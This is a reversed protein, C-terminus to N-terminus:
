SQSDRRRGNAIGEAFSGLAAGLAFPSRRTPLDEIRACFASSAATMVPSVGFEL